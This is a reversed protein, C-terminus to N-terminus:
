NDVTLNSSGCAVVGLHKSAVLLPVSSLYHQSRGLRSKSYHELLVQSNDAGSM